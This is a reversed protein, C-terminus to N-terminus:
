DKGEAAQKLREIDFKKMQMLAKMVRQSKQQDSDQLLEMLVDPVVQWSVGFKDKLWGCEVEEGSESLKEWFYDVEEQTQCHIVLSMAETFKFQPGGNLATFEQGDLEFSPERRGLDQTVM